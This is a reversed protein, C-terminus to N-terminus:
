AFGKADLVGKWASAFHCYFYELQHRIAKGFSTPYVDKGFPTPKLFPLQVVWVSEFAKGAKEVYSNATSDSTETLPKAALADPLAYGVQLGHIMDDLM